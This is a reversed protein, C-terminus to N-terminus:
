SIVWVSSAVVLNLSLTRLFHKLQPVVSVEVHRLDLRLGPLTTRKYCSKKNGSGCSDSLGNTLEAVFTTQKLSSM